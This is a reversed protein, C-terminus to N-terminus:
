SNRAHQGSASHFIAADNPFPPLKPPLPASLFHLMEYSRLSDRWLKRIKKIFVAVFVFQLTQDWKDELCNIIQKMESIILVCSSVFTM